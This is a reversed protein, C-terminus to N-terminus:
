EPRRPSYHMHIHNNNPNDPFTEYIVVYDVGLADQAAKVIAPADVEPKPLNWTRCDLGRGGYHESDRKHKGDNGATIVLDVGKREYLSELVMVGILMQPVLGLLTVGPKLSIM